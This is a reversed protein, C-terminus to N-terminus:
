LRVRRDPPPVPAGHDHWAQLRLVGALAHQATTSPQSVYLTREVPDIAVYADVRVRLVVPAWPDEPVRTARRWLRRLVVAGMRRLRRNMAAHWRQEARRAKRSDGGLDAWVDPRPPDHRLWCRRRWWARLDRLPPNRVLGREDWEPGQVDFGADRLQRRAAHRHHYPVVVAGAWAYRIAELRDRQVAMTAAPDADADAVLATFASHDWRAIEIWPVGHGRWDHIRTTVGLRDLALSAADGEMRAGTLLGLVRPHLDPM